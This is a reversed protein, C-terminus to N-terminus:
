HQADCKFTMTYLEVRIQGFTFSVTKNNSCKIYHARSSLQQAHVHMGCKLSCSISLAEKKTPQAGIVPDTMLFFFADFIPFQQNNLVLHLISIPRNENAHM